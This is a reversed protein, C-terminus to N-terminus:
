HPATATATQKNSTTKQKILIQKNNKDRPLGSVSWTQKKIINLIQNCDINIKKVYLVKSFLLHINATM